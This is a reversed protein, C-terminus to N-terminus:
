TCPEDDTSLELRFTELKLNHGRGGVVDMTAAESHGCGSGTMHDTHVVYVLTLLDLVDYQSHIQVTM